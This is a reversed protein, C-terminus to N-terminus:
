FRVGCKEWKELREIESDVHEQMIKFEKDTLHKFRGQKQLYEEVPKKNVVRKTIRLVGDEIEYLIWMGTEVALKAINITQNSDFRWGAPCPCHIHVFSPQKAFAKKMKEVLDSPYAISVTAVYPIKHAAVIEVIPKKMTENGISKKGPPSTTTWAGYPTAGSRQVGTNAYCENDVCIQTVRHRRELMGSLGQLGIDFTGGDGAIALVKWDKGMKKLASEMGSAMASTTEFTCHIWPANWATLPYASTTVELCSTACALIVNEPCGKSVQNIAIGVGCGACMSHGQALVDVM